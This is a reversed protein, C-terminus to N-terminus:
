RVPGLERGVKSNEGISPSGPALCGLQGKDVAADVEGMLSHAGQLHFGTDYEHDLDQCVIARLLHTNLILSHVLLNLIIGRTIDM